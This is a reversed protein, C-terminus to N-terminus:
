NGVEVLQSGLFAAFDLDRVDLHHPNAHFAMGHRQDLYLGIRADVADAFAMVVDGTQARLVSDQVRKALHETPLVREVDVLRGCLHHPANRIEPAIM